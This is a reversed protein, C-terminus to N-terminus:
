LPVARSRRRQIAAVLAELLTSSRAPKILQADIALDRFSANALSQDVSTLMVIPTAALAPTTRVIRAMEAGTMGPMQYDLVICDVPINYAAAAELVKLGEPGSQAACADFTWSAMQEMLISRNVANDDVILV